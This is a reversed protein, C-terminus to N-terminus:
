FWHGEAVADRIMTRNEMITNWVALLRVALNARFETLTHKKGFLKWVSAMARSTVLVSPGRGYFERAYAVEWSRGNKYVRYRFSNHDQVKRYEDVLFKSVEFMTMNLEELIIDM